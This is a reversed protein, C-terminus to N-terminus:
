LLEAFGHRLSYFCNSRAGTRSLDHGANDWRRPFLSENESLQVFRQHQLFVPSGNARRVGPPLTYYDPPGSNEERNVFSVSLVTDYSVGPVPAKRWQSGALIWDAIRLRVKGGKFWVRVYQINSFSPNGVKRYGARLPIRYLYWGKNGGGVIQPNRAPDPDLNVEYSFYSNELMITQGNNPNLVEQDPVQTQVYKGNGEHRNFKIFDQETQASPTKEFDFAFDDRSPDGELNLPYPYEAKEQENSWQDLGVDEGDDLIGNPIPNADTIGDETNLTQNPIVDESIQGLDIFM